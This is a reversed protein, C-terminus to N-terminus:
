KLRRVKETSGLSTMERKFHNDREVVLCVFCMACTRAQGDFTNFPAQESTTLSAVVTTNSYLTQQRKIKRLSSPMRVYGAHLTTYRKSIEGRKKERFWM